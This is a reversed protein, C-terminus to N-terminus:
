PKEWITTLLGHERMIKTMNACYSTAADLERLLETVDDASFVHGLAASERIAALRQPTM